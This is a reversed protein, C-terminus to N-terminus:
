RRTMVGKNVEGIIDNKDHLQRVWPALEKSNLLSVRCISQTDDDIVNSTGVNLTVVVKELSSDVVRIIEEEHVSSKLREDDIVVNSSEMVSKTKLNFVRYARSDLAYGIFIGEDSKDDFKGLQDCYNLIYCKSGFSHFYSVNPKRGKWLEYSTNRTGPGLFVRPVNNSLLMVCAMEQLVKNKREVVGNQQPTRPASFEHSIGLSNCYSEFVANEFERGRDSRIRKISKINSNM